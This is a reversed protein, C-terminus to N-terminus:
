DKTEIINRINNKIEFITNDTLFYQASLDRIRGYTLLASIYDLDDNIIIDKQLEQWTTIMDAVREIKPTIELYASTLFAAAVDTQDIARGSVAQQVKENLRSFVNVIQEINEISYKYENIRGITLIVAIKDSDNKIVFNKDVKEWQNIIENITEIQETRSICASTIMASSISSDPLKDTHGRNKLDTLITNILENLMSVFRPEKVESKIDMMRGLALFASVFELNNKVKINNKFNNWIEVISRSSEVKYTHSIFAATIFASLEDTNSPHIIEVL